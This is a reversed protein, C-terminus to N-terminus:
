SAPIARSDTSVAGRRGGIVTVKSAPTSQGIRVDQPTGGDPNVCGSTNSNIACDIFNNELYGGFVDTGQTTKIYIGYGNNREANGGVLTVNAYDISFGKGFNNKAQCGVFVVNGTRNAAAGPQDVNM